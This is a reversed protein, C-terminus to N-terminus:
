FSVLSQGQLFTRGIWNTQPRPRKRLYVFTQQVQIARAGRVSSTELIFTEIEKLRERLFLVEKPSFHEDTSYTDPISALPAEHPLGSWFDPERIEYRIVELWQSFAELLGEWNQARVGHGLNIHPEVSAFFIGEDNREFTFSFERGEHSTVLAEAPESRHGSVAQYYHEEYRTVFNSTHTQWSFRALELGTREIIAFIENREKKTLKLM